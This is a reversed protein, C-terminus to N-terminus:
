IWFCSENLKCSFTCVVMVIIKQYFIFLEMFINRFKFLATYDKTFLTVLRQSCSTSPVPITSVIDIHLKAWYQKEPFSRCCLINIEGFNYVIMIRLSCNQIFLEFVFLTLGASPSLLYRGPRTLCLVQTIFKRFWVQNNQIEQNYRGYVRAM